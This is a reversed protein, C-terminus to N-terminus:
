FHFLSNKAVLFITMALFLNSMAGNFFAIKLNPLGSTIQAERNNCVVNGFSFRKICMGHPESHLRRGKLFTMAGMAAKTQKL